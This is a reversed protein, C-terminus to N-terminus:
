LSTPDSFQSKPNQLDSIRFGFLRENHNSIFARRVDFDHEFFRPSVELFRVQRHNSAGVFQRVRGVVPLYPDGALGVHLMAQCHRVHQGLEAQITFRQGGSQQVIYQFVGFGGEFDDLLYKPLVDGPQNVADGFQALDVSPGFHFAAPLIFLGLAETLHEQGHDVIHADHEDLEGVPQM